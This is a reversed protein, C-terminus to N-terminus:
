PITDSNNDTDVRAPKFKAWDAAMAEAEAKKGETILHTEYYTHITDFRPDWSLARLYVKEADDFRELGDLVQGYRVLMNEDQPFVKLGAEFAAAADAFFEQNIYPDPIRTAIMRYAEGLYLYLDPNRPNGGTKSLLQDLLDRPPPPNQGDPTTASSTVPLPPVGYIAKQAYAIALQNQGTRLYGRALEGAYEAPLMPLGWWLMFAGLIPPLLKACPIIRTDAFTLPREIGPNALLGFLFAFVLSNGPVHMDFDVFSHIALGFVACLAGVQLAFRNSSHLGSPILKRHLIDSWTRLGHRIHAFLFLAMCLGGVVGYEALLELYDCHAHVPDAQIEPRRFLRGYILHTGAGTGVWPSVHFHDIAAEWNYIRVDKVVMTQMRRALLDSHGMIFVVFAVIAILAALSASAVLLFKDPAIARVSWSCVVVFYLMGAVIDFYGGRSGSVAIGAMCCLAIYLVLMKAWAPWRSWVGLSASLVAIAALYGAFNNPSVFMGSARIVKPRLLGFLMFNQDHIFQVMGVWVEAAAIACLVAIFAMQVGPGSLYFAFLLYVMLCGLMMTFDAWSLYAVPSHWSRALIWAGLLLTSGVCFPDPPVRRRPITFLSLIAAVSILAYGPLSFVLRTGGILCEIWVLALSLLALLLIPV